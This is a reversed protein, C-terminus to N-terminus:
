LIEESGIIQERIKKPIYRLCNKGGMEIAALCLEPVKYKRPVYQLDFRNRTVADLCNEYTKLKHPTFKLIGNYHKIVKFLEETKYKEPIYRLSMKNRKVAEQYSEFNGELRPTKHSDATNRSPYKDKKLEMYYLDRYEGNHMRVNFLRSYEEFRYSEYYENLYPGFCELYKGGLDIAALMLKTGLGPIGSQNHLSVMELESSNKIKVLAIGANVGKVKFTLMKKLTSLKRPVLYEGYESKIAVQLSKYFAEPDQDFDKRLISDIINNTKIRSDANFLPSAPVIEKQEGIYKAYQKLYYRENRCYLSLNSYQRVSESDLLAEETTQGGLIGIAVCVDYHLKVDKEWFSEVPKYM